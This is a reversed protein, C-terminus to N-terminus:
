RDGVGVKDFALPRVVRGAVHSGGLFIEQDDDASRGGVAGYAVSFIGARLRPQARGFAVARLKHCLNSVLAIASNGSPFAVDRLGLRCKFWQFHARMVRNARSSKTLAIKCIFSAGRPICTRGQMYQRRRWWRSRCRSIVASSGSVPAQLAGRRRPTRSGARCVRRALM